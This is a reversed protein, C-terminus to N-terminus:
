AEQIVYVDLRTMVLRHNSNVSTGAYSRVDILTRKENQQWLIYETQNFTHIVQNTTKNSRQKQYIVALLM